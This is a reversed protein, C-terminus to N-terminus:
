NTPQIPFGAALREFRQREDAPLVTDRVVGRFTLGLRALEPELAAANRNKLNEIQRQYQDLVRRLGRARDPSLEFESLLLTEYDAFSGREPPDNALEMGLVVGGATGALFSTAALLVIWLRLSGTM